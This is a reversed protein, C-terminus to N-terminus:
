FGAGNTPFMTIHSVDPFTVSGLPNLTSPSTSPFTPTVTGPLSPVTPAQSNQFLSFINTNEQSSAVSTQVAGAFSADAGSPAATQSFAPVVAVRIQRLHVDIVILGVGNSATRKYDYHEVNCNSYTVEPTVVDYTDLTESLFAITSLLAGRNNATEGSSFRLRIDFPTKVKNYTQFAGDEVPYDLLDWDQKFELAIVNDAFVVPEGDKFLGWQPVGSQGIPQVIDGTLLVPELPAPGGRM